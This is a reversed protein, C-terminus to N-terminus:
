AHNGTGCTPVQAQAQGNWNSQPMRRVLEAQQQAYYSLTKRWLGRLQKPDTKALDHIRKFEARQADTDWRQMMEHYFSASNLHDYCNLHRENFITIDGTPLAHCLIALTDYFTPRGYDYTMVPRFLDCPLYPGNHSTSWLDDMCKRLRSPDIWLFSTHLRSRYISRSWHNWHDPVFMGAIAADFKFGECNEWFICDPDVIVLPGPYLNIMDHIWDAHHIPGDHHYVWEAGIDQCRLLMDKNGTIKHVCRPQCHVNIAATPFGVRLSDLSLTCAEYTDFETASILTAVTM